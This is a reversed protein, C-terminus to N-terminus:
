HEVPPPLPPLTIEGRKAQELKADIEEWSIPGRGDTYIPLPKDLFADTTDYDVYRKPEDAM